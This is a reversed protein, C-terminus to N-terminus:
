DGAGPSAGTDWGGKDLESTDGKDGRRVAGDSEGGAGKDPEAKGKKTESETDGKIGRWNKERASIPPEKETGVGSVKISLEYPVSVTLLPERNQRVAKDLERKAAATDECDVKKWLEGYEEQIWVQYDM